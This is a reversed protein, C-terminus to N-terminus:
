EEKQRASYGSDYGENWATKKADDLEDQMEARATEIEREMDRLRGVIDALDRNWAM